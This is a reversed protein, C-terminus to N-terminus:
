YDAVWAAFEDTIGAPNAAATQTVIEEYYELQHVIIPITRGFKQEILGSDHLEKAIVTMMKTFNQFIGDGIRMCRDFNVEKQQDSYDLGLEIRWAKFAEASESHPEAVVCLENQLWFAFNWKAEARNSGASITAEYKALTNYGFMLIPLRPDDDHNDLYFSLAYIQAPNNIAWIANVLMDKAMAFAKTQSAQSQARMNQSAINESAIKQPPKSQSNM